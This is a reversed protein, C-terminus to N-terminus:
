CLADERHQLAVVARLEILVEDPTEHLKQADVRWAVQHPQRGALDRDHSPHVRRIRITRADPHQEIPRRAAPDGVFSIEPFRRMGACLGVTTPGSSGASNPM